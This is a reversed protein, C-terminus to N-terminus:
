PIQTKLTKPNSPKTALLVQNVCNGVGSKSILSSPKRLPQWAGQCKLVAAVPFGTSSSHGISILKIQLPDTGPMWLAICDGCLTCPNKLARSFHTCGGFIGSKNAMRRAFLEGCAVSECSLQASVHTPRAM